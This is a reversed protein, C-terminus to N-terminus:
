ETITVPAAVAVWPHIAERKTRAHAEEETNFFVGDLKGSPEIWTNVYVTREVPAMFLDFETEGDACVAGDIRAWRAAGEGKPQFAIPLNSTDHEFHHFDIVERGGRTILKAGAKAAALDLPKYQKTM